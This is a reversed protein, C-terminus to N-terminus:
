RAGEEKSTLLGIAALITWAGEGLTVWLAGQHAELNLTGSMQWGLVGLAVAVGVLRVAWGFAGGGRWGLSWILMAFAVMDVHVQAFSRNLWMTYRAFDHITDINAGPEHAAQMMYPFMLGSMAGALMTFVASLGYFCLALLPLPRDFGQWRTLAIAGFFLVPKMTLATGHVLGSLSFPGLIPAGGGHSPHMAMLGVYAASGGILAIGGATNLKM